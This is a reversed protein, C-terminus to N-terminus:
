ARREARALAELRRAAASQEAYVKRLWAAAEGHILARSRAAAALQEDGLTRALAARKVWRDWAAEQRIIQRETRRAAVYTDLYQEIRPKM